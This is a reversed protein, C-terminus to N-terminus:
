IFTPESFIRLKRGIDWQIESFTCSLGQTAISCLMPVLDTQTLESSNPSRSIYSARRPACNKRVIEMGVSTGNSWCPDFEARYGVHPPAHKYPTMCAGGYWPAPGLAWWNKTGRTQALVVSTPITVRAALRSKLPWYLWQMNCLRRATPWRDSLRNEQRFTSDGNLETTTM